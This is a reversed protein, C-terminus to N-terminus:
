SHHPLRGKQQFLLCCVRHEGTNYLPKPSEYTLLEDGSEVKSGEFYIYCIVDAKFSDSFSHSKIVQFTSLYM